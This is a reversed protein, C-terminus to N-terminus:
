KNWPNLVKAGTRAMDDQDRTVVTLEHAIATAGILSDIAPLPNKTRATMEAWATAVSEDIPLIRGAFWPRVDDNLWARLKKQRGAETALRIGRELEGLTLVSIFLENEHALLWKQVPPHPERRAWESLVNTDVLWSM